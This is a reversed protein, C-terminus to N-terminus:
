PHTLPTPIQIDGSKGLKRVGHYSSMRMVFSIGGRAHRASKPNVVATSSGWFGTEHLGVNSPPTTANVAGSSIMGGLNPRLSEVGVWSPSM